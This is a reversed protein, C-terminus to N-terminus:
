DCDNWDYGSLAMIQEDNNVFIWRGLGDRELRKNYGLYDRIYSIANNVDHFASEFSWDYPINDYGKCYVPEFVIWVPFDGVDIDGVNIDFHAKVKM